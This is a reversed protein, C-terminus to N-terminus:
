TKRRITIYSSWVEGNVSVCGCLVCLYMCVCMSIYIYVIGEEVKMIVQV